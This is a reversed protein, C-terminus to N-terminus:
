IYPTEDAVLSAHTPPFQTPNKNFYQPSNM